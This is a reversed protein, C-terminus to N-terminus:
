ATPPRPTPSFLSFKRIRLAKFRKSGAPLFVGFGATVTAGEDDHAPGNETSSLGAGPESEAGVKVDANSRGHLSGCFRCKTTSQTLSRTRPRNSRRWRESRSAKDCKVLPYGSIAREAYFLEDSSQRTEANIICVTGLKEGLEVYVVSAFYAPRLEHVCEGFAPSLHEQPLQPAAKKASPNMGVGYRADPIEHPTRLTRQNISRANSSSASACPPTPEPRASSLRLTGTLSPRLSQSM